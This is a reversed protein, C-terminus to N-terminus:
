FLLIAQAIAQFFNGATRPSVNERRLIASVRAWSRRAKKLCARVAQADDDGYALLRGLYRFVEVRELPQDYATFTHRLALASAVAREHQRRREGRETCIISGWHRRSYRPEPNVFMNCNPCRPFHGDGAVDVSDRPHRDDFHRRM